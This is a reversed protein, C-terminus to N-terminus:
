WYMYCCVLLGLGQEAARIHDSHEQRPWVSSGVRELIIGREHGRTRGCTLAFMKAMRGGFARSSARSFTPLGSSSGSSRIRSGAQGCKCSTYSNKRRNTTLACTRARRGAAPWGPFKCQGGGGRTGCIAASHTAVKYRHCSVRRRTRSCTSGFSTALCYKSLRVSVFSTRPGADAM